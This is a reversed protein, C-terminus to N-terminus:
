RYPIAIAFLVLASMIALWPGLLDLRRPRSVIGVASIVFTVPILLFAIPFTLRCFQAGIQDITGGFLDLFVGFSFGFSNVIVLVSGINNAIVGRVHNLSDTTSEAIDRRLNVIWRALLWVPIAYVIAFYAFYNANLNWGTMEGNRLSFTFSRMGFTTVYLENEHRIINGGRQGSGHIAVWVIRVPIDFVPLRWSPLESILYAAVQGNADWFELGDFVRYDPPDGTSHVWTPGAISRGDNGIFLCGDTEDRKYPWFANSDFSWLPDDPSNAKYVTHHKTEPNYDVFYESNASSRQHHEPRKPSYAFASVPIFLSLGFIVIYRMSLGIPLRRKVRPADHRHHSQFFRGIGHKTNEDRNVVWHGRRLNNITPRMQRWM